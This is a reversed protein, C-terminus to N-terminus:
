RCFRVCYQMTLPVLDGVIVVGAYPTGWPDTRPGSRNVIYVFSKDLAIECVDSICNASSM